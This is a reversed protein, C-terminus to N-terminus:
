FVCLIILFVDFFSGMLSFFYVGHDFFSVRYDYFFVYVENVNM